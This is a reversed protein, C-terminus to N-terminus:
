SAAFDPNTFRDDGTQVKHPAIPPTVEAPAKSRAKSPEAPALELRAVPEGDPARLKEAVAQAMVGAGASFERALDPRAVVTAAVVFVSASALYSLALLRLASM